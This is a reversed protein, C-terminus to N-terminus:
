PEYDWLINMHLTKNQKNKKKNIKLLYNGSKLKIKSGRAELRKIKQTTPPHKRQMTNTPVCNNKPIHIDM